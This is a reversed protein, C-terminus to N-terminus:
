NKREMRRTVFLLPFSSIITHGLNDDHVIWWDIIYNM